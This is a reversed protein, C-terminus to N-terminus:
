KRRDKRCNIELLEVMDDRLRNRLKQMRKRVYEPHQGEEDAIEKFYQGEVVHMRFLKAENEELTAVIGQLLEYDMHMLSITRIDELYDEAGEVGKLMAKPLRGTIFSEKITAIDMAEESTTDAMGSGQVRVGLEDRSRSRLYERESRIRYMTKVEANKIIGPFKTFNAMMLDFRGDADAQRYLTLFDTKDKKM